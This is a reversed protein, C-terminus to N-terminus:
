QNKCILCQSHMVSQLLILSIHSCKLILASAGFDKNSKADDLGYILYHPLM